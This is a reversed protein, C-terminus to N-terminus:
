CGTVSGTPYCNDPSNGAVTSTVLTVPEGGGFLIGGGHPQQGLARNTTVTSHDLM